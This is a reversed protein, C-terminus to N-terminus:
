SHTPAPAIAGKVAKVRHDADNVTEAPTEQAPLALKIHGAKKHAEDNGEEQPKANAIEPM